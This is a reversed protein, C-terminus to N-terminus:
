SSGTSKVVFRYDLAVFKSDRRVKFQAVVDRTWAAENTSDRRSLVELPIVQKEVYQKKFDGLFWDTTDEATLHSSGLVRVRGAWPNVENNGVSSGSIGPLMANSILRTAMPELGTPVLLTTPRITIPDGDDDKMLGFLNNADDLDTYDALINVVLNDYVHPAAGADAFVTTTTGSPNWGQYGTIDMITKLGESERDRAAKQGLLMAKRMVLGTQDFRLAEETIDLIVGRKNHGITVWKDKIDMSHPYPMGEAVDEINGKLFAGPITDVLLSSSFPTVLLDIIGPEETYATLVQKSLLSTMIVDFQTTNVDEYVVRADGCAEYIELMSFEDPRLFPQFDNSADGNLFVPLSEAVFAEFGGAEEIVRTIRLGGNPGNLM